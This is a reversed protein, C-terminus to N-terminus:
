HRKQIKPLNRNRIERTQNLSSVQVFAHSVLKQLVHLPCLMQEKNHTATVVLLSSLKM